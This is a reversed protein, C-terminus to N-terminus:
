RPRRLAADGGGNKARDIAVTAERTIAKLRKKYQASDEEWKMRDALNQLLDLQELEWNMTAKVSM